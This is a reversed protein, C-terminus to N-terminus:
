FKSGLLSLTNKCGKLYGQFYRSIGTVFICAISNNWLYNWLCFYPFVPFSFRFIIRLNHELNKIYTISLCSSSNSQLFVIDQPKVSPSSVKIARGTGFKHSLLWHNENQQSLVTNLFILPSILISGKLPSTVNLTDLCLTYNQPEPLIIPM